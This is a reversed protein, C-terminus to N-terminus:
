PLNVLGLANCLFVIFGGALMPHPFIEPTFVVEMM